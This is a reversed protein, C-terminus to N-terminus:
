FPLDSTNDVFDPLATNVNNRSPISGAVQSAPLVSTAPQYTSIGNREAIERILRNTESERFNNVYRAMHAGLKGVVLSFESFCDAFIVLNTPKEVLSLEGTKANYKDVVTVPEFVFRYTSKPLKKEDFDEYIRLEPRYKGDVPGDFYLQTIVTGKNNIVDATIPPTGELEGNMIKTYVDWTVDLFKDVKTAFNEIMQSNYVFFKKDDKSYTKRGDTDIVAKRLGITLSEDLFGVELMMADSYLAVCRTSINPATYSRGGNNFLGAM